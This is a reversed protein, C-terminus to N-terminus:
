RNLVGAQNLGEIVLAAGVLTIVLASAVPLIRVIRSSSSLNLRTMLKRAYIFALGMGTLTTALGLSFLVILLLGFATQGLAISSLMVVLASPCPLLGASIGFMLLRKWTVATGDTGPPLHSHAVGGHSHVHDDIHEHDHQEHSHSHQLDHDPDHDAHAYDHPEHSHAHENNHEHDHTHESHFHTEHSHEDHNHSHNEQSDAPALAPATKGVFAYRLRTRFLALGMLVVIVGSAFGLWPYLKEPLIFQSAFLTILGLGFVGLTHTVTVTAGLFIAHRPTGRTGVLYAAVVTKGHGPSLAHVAGLGFAAALLGLFVPLTVDKTNLLSAFPDDTKATIQAINASSQNNVVVTPDLKFSVQAANVNLPSALLDTPYTRLENSQDTSPASSQSLAVGTANRVVIERWGLRENFNDDRYSLTAADTSLVESQFLATLRMTQLGGQGALFTLDKTAIKTTVSKGNMNITLGAQIETAKRDLYALRESDSIQGDHNTDILDKEQFTPIEAMDLVYHINLGASGIEIRSYRNVTFNGLPHASAPSVNSLWGVALTLLVAVLIGSKYKKRSLVNM